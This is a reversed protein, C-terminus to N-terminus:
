PCPTPPCSTDKTKRVGGKKHLIDNFHAFSSCMFQCQISRNKIVDILKLIVVRKVYMTEKERVRNHQNELKTPNNNPQNEQVLM